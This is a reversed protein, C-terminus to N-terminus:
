KEVSMVTGMFIPQNTKCDILMYVFPRDLYVTKIEELPMVMATERVVEVATAAGAKTGSEDVSIFTKHLVRSISLNANEYTGLGSFDAKEEDFADTMGMEQLLRSMEVGYQSEFKPIAANIQLKEANELIDALKEGTLTEVYESVFVGENPLLAAFAYKGDKYYKLFGQAKDDQLYQNETSYMLEVSETTKDERTFSGERVQYEEYATQWKADFAIANVLYMLAEKPIKDLIEEIMGDTNENVWQNIDKLTSDDFYAEYVGAGYYDENIRLFDQEVTFKGDDKFWVSNAIALKYDEDTPLESIYASLCDNLDEARAGFVQEMQALTEGKAGNATMALAYLVSMPSILTNEQEQLSQQFLRVAFDTMVASEDITIDSGSNGDGSEGSDTDGVDELGASVTTVNDEKGSLNGTAGGAPNTGGAVSAGGAPDAGGAPKGCGWLSGSMSLTLAFCLTVAAIKKKM